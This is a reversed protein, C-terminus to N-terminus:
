IQVAVTVQGRITVASRRGDLGILNIMKLARRHREAAPVGRAELGM